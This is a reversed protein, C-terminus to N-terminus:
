YIGGESQLFDSDSRVPADIGPARLAREIIDERRITRRPESEPKFAEWIVATRPDDTPWAGFVKRGSRRDIRVMRIGPAARFPVVPMDKFAVQAWQKWIPAAMTGGQAAGGMARPQDFGVYVGAVLDASGGVFWVNTPGNTTGTKGFLPRDLDRLVTATGRQVVGELMHVMQYATMPNMLQRRRDAPRPMAKGNWEPSNCGECARGDARFITKGHRDQVMDVLTPTLAGGGNVLMSFANTLKLVTTEGAGLSIALVAPYDGIGMDKAVKVVKDMGTQSATRVTMLNRSQELGWRMTQPGASGGSFNRFCKRGLRASQYVCFPGDVIISAPTMGNDLAAAYVFPKFSSGPQRQAQTARNFQSRRSDFGGVMALVRGTHPDQVVMGGSVEPIQRLAYRGNGEVKVPIVDGAKLFNFASGGVGRRPWNAAYDPLPGTSGDEFGLTIVGGGKRLVVAARWDDYGVPLSLASLRDEWGEGTEITDAPGRWGRARDYKVLGDRLAAEAARQINMDISTRVWLGGAYVSNPGDEADEGFREVLERRVDEIFWSGTRDARARHPRIAVLPTAIAADRQADSIHQNSAMQTLVWNRRNLARSHGRQTNPTYNSPAKPLVALFATEPLTLEGVDKDFYARSAAQVGYANRGLFIQNLYLELIQQKTFTNEIRMALIAERVKRMYSVENDLLLNKAVQQTITSAGVPRGDSRLNTIVAAVISPYDLGGHEFFNKDEASLFARILQPPLEDYTLYIRRERAFQHVPEGNIDRVHTPLPPAYNALAETSPLGRMFMFWFLLAGAIAVLAAYVGLRVPWRAWLERVSRRGDRRLRSSEITDGDKM